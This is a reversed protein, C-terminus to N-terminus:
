TNRLGTSGASREAGPPVHVDILCVGGSRLVEVGKAMAADLDELKTIPGIGVVGQSEAFKPIDIAPGTMSQGIWRNGVVRNRRRAINEQHLEDNFYSQNNNLIVLLPIKHKVATWLAHGGMMFDGDGLIAVADRGMDACALAVGISISPGSGIGGGGDKGMYAMPSRFPWLDCPFQRAVGAFTVNDPNDFQKRLSLAVDQMGIRTGDGPRFEKRIAQRWPEKKGTAGLAALLDEAFTEACASVLLDAPAMAQYIM